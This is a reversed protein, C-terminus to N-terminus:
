GSATGPAQYSAMQTKAREAAEDVEDATVLRMVKWKEYIGISAGMLVTYADDAPGREDNPYEVLMALHWEGDAVAYWGHLRGGSEAVVKASVEPRSKAGDKLVGAAGEATYKGLVLYMAM